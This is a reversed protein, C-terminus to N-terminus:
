SDLCAATEADFLRGCTLLTEAFSRMPLHGLSTVGDSTLTTVAVLPITDHRVIKFGLFGISNPAGDGAAAAISKLGLPTMVAHLPSALVFSKNVKPLFLLASGRNELIIRNAVMLTNYSRKVLDPRGKALGRYLEGMSLTDPSLRSPIGKDPTITLAVGMGRVVAPRSGKQPYLTWGGAFRDHISWAPRGQVHEGPNELFKSVPLDWAPAGAQIRSFPYCMDPTTRLIQFTKHFYASM